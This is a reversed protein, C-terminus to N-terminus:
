CRLFSEPRHGRWMKLFGACEGALSAVRIRCQGRRIAWTNQRRRSLRRVTHHARPYHLRRAPFFRVGRAERRTTQGPRLAGAETHWTPVRRPRRVGSETPTGPQSTGAGELGKRGGSRAGPETKLRCPAGPPLGTVSIRGHKQLGNQFVLELREHTADAERFRKEAAMESSAPKRPRDPACPPEQFRQGPAWARGTRPCQNGEGNGKLVSWLVYSWLNRSWCVVTIYTIIYLFLLTYIFWVLVRSDDDSM